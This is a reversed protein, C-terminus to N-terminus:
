RRPKGFTQVIITTEQDNFQGTIVALGIEQYQSGLINARHKGSRMWADVVGQNTVFGIALNEGAYSYEYDAGKIWASFVKGDPTTHSFYQRALLDKAKNEAALTLQENATLPPLNYKTRESNTLQIIHEADVQSLYAVSPVLFLVGFLAIEVSLIISIIQIIKKNKAINLFRSISSSMEIVPMRHRPFNLLQPINKSVFFRIKALLNKM